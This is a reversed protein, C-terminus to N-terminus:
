RSLTVQQKTALDLQVLQNQKTILVRREPTFKIDYVIETDILECSQSDLNWKVLGGLTILLDNQNADFYLKQLGSLNPDLLDRGWGDLCIANLPTTTLTNLNLDFLEGTDQNAMFLRSGAADFTLEYLRGTNGSYTIVERQLTELNIKYLQDSLDSSTIWLTKTAPDYASGAMNQPIPGNGVTASVLPQLTLNDLTLAQVSEPFGIILRNNASDFHMDQVYSYNHLDFEYLATRDGTEMNIRILTPISNIGFEMVYSLQNGADYVLETPMFMKRGNGIGASLLTSREGNSLNVAMVYGFSPEGILLQNQANDVAISGPQALKYDNEFTEPSLESVSNDTLNITVIGNIGAVYLKDEIDPALALVMPFYESISAVYARDGTAANIAIIDNGIAYFTDAGKVFHYFLLPGGVGQTKSAILTLTESVLNYGYLSTEFVPNTAATDFFQLSFYLSNDAVSYYSASQYINIDPQSPPTFHHLTVVQQTDLSKSKIYLDTGDFDIFLLANNAAAYHFNYLNESLDTLVSYNETDLEVSLLELQGPTSSSYVPGILRRNVTDFTFDTPPQTNSIELVVTNENLQGNNDVTEVTLVNNTYSELPVEIEWSEEATALAAAISVSEPSYNITASVGNIRVDSINQGKTGLVTISNTFAKSKPSPFSVAFSQSAPASLTTSRFAASVGGVSLRSETQTSYNAASTHRVRIKAGNNVQSSNRTFNGNDIAYEGNDMSVTVTSNIGSITIEESVIVTSLAVNSQAGFNFATPMNTSETDDNGGGCASLFSALMIISALMKFSASM